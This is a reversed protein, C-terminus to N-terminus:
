LFDEFAGAVILRRMEKKFKPGHEYKNDLSVHVMEHLLTQLCIDNWDKFFPNLLIYHPYKAKDVTLTSGYQRKRTKKENYFGVFVMPLKYGFYMENFFDYADQLYHDHKFKRLDFKFRSM